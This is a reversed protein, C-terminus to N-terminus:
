HDEASIETYRDFVHFIETVVRSALQVKLSKAALVGM